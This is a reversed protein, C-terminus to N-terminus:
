TSRVQVSLGVSKGSEGTGLFLIKITNKKKEHDAKLESDIRKSASTASATEADM